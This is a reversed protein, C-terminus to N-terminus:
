GHASSETIHIEMSVEINISVQCNWKSKKCAIFSLMHFYFKIIKEGVKSKWVYTGNLEIIDVKM